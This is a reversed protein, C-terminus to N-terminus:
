RKITQRIICGISKIALFFIQCMANINFRSSSKIFRISASRLIRKLLFMKNGNSIVSSYKNLFLFMEKIDRNTRFTVASVSENHLRYFILSKAIYLDGMGSLKSRIWIDSDSYHVFKDDFSELDCWKHLNIASGSIHWATSVKKLLTNVEAIRDHYAIIPNSFKLFGSTEGYEIKKSPEILVDYSSWVSFSEKGKYVIMQILEILWNGKAIDDAHLIFVWKFKDKFSNFARNKTNWQGLNIYNKVLFFNSLLEIKAEIKAVSDDTSCDDYIFVPIPLNVNEIALNVSDISELITNGCNYCPILVVYDSVNYNVM